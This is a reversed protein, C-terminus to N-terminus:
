RIRFRLDRQVQLNGHRTEVLLLYEGPELTSLPVEFLYDTARNSGFQEPVVRLEQGFVRRDSSNVISVHLYGPMVEHTLGQHERVFATVHEGRTFVRRATPVIPVSDGAPPRQAPGDIPAAELLIGSLTVPERAFDPVEVYGYVSGSAGLSTDDIAARIEYRGPKLVLRGIAEYEVLRGARPAVPISLTQTTDSLSKGNRDFAGVFVTAAATAPREGVAEGAVGLVVRLEADQLGPRAIPVV